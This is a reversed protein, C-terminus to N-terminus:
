QKPMNVAFNLQVAIVQGKYEKPLPPFPTSASVAAVAARDLADFGSPSAIVLKPVRGNTDISFQIAVRGSRGMRASEPLVSLFYRKAAALVRSLYGSFDVGMPDSLLQAGGAPGSLELSESGPASVGGGRLVGRLAEAATARPLPRAQGPAPLKPGTPDELAIRPKEAEAIQPGPTVPLQLNPSPGPAVEIRPPEPLSAAAPPAPQPVPPAQMPKPAQAPPVRSPPAMPTKGRSLLESVDLEKKVKADNAGAQTLDNPPMVLPTVVRGGGIDLITPKFLESPLVLLLGIAAVHLVISLIGAKGRRAGDGPEGWHTLFQPSREVTQM